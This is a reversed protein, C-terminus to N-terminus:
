ILRFNSGGGKDWAQESTPVTVDSNAQVPLIEVAAPAVKDITALLGV